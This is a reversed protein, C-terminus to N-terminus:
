RPDNTAGFTMEEVSAKFRKLLSKLQRENIQKDRMHKLRKRLMRPIKWLATLWAKAITAGVLMMSNEVALKGALGKGSSAVKMSGTLRKLTYWPSSLILIPPFYKILVWIRNREIWFLKQMSSSGTSASQRHYVVAAPVYMCKYGALRLKMGLDADDGYAFFDEDFGGTNMVIDRRYLAACGSAFITEEIQDYQGRDRTLHGRSRNLGDIYMLHGVNDILTRDDYCLIKSTCMGVDPTSEAVNILAEAWGKEAVADDNLLLLYKGRAREFALNNGGAFGRNTTSRVVRISDRFEDALAEATGDTSGNDVVIVELRDAITQTLVSRVSELIM